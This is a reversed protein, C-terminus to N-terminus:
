VCREESSTGCSRGLVQGVVSNLLPKNVFFAHADEHQSWYAGCLWSTRGGKKEGEGTVPDNSGALM